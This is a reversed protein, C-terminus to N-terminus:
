HSIQGNAISLDTVLKFTIAIQDFQFHPRLNMICAFSGPRDPLERVQVRADRLPYRARQEASADDNDICYSHLWQQLALECASATSYSGIRDRVQVRVYHAFRSVCLMYRVMSSSREDSAAPSPAGIIAKPRAYISVGARFVLYPTDKCTSLNMLGLQWLDHEVHSPVVVECGHRQVVLAGDAATSPAPVGTVLGHDIEDQRAGCIDAFWGHLSFARVLVEGFAYVASGWCMDAKVLGLRDERYRFPMQAGDYPPRMLIRPLALALFRTDVQQRLREYRRYEEGRFLKGIDRLRDLEDYSDIALLHPSAGIVAPAFAAAAVSALSSLAAIDDVPYSADSQHRVQYDCLLVGFPLGGPMGFEENYVKNFLASLEVDGAHEFDRALDPWSINLAKVMVGAAPGACRCLYALGRWSAELGQFRTHHLIANLQDTMIRDILAIDRDICGPIAVPLVNALDEGFWDCLAAAPDSEALFRDLRASPRRGCAMDVVHQRLAPRRRCSSSPCTATDDAAPNSADWSGPATVQREGSFQLGANLDAHLGAQFVPQM